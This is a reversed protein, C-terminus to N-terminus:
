EMTELNKISKTKLLPTLTMPLLHIIIKKYPIAKNEKKYITQDKSIILFSLLMSILLFLIKFLFRDQLRLQKIRILLVVVRSCPNLWMAIRSLKILDVWRRITSSIEVAAIGM